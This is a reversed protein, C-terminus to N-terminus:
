KNRGIAFDNSLYTKEIREIELMIKSVIDQRYGNNKLQKRLYELYAIPNEAIQNETWVGVRDKLYEKSEDDIKKYDPLTNVGKYEEQDEKSITNLKEEM